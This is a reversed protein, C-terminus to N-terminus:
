KPSAKRKTKRNKEVRKRRPTALARELGWKRVRWILTSHTIRLREAEAKICVGNLGEMTHRWLCKRCKAWKGRRCSELTKTVEAGCPCTYRVDYRVRGSLCKPTASLFVAGPTAECWERCRNEQNQLAQKTAIMHQERREDLLKAKRAEKRQALKDARQRKRLEM